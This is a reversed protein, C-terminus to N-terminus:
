HPSPQGFAFSAASRLKLSLTSRHGFATQPASPIQQFRSECSPRCSCILRPPGSPAFVSQRVPFPDRPRLDPRLLGDRVAGTPGGEANVWAAPARSSRKEPRVRQAWEELLDNMEEFNAMPEWTANEEDYGKWQLLYQMEGKHKREALIKEVEWVESGDPALEPETINM